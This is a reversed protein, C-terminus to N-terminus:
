EDRQKEKKDRHAGAYVLTMRAILHRTLTWHELGAREALAILEAPTYARGVSVLGDHITVRSFRMIRAFFWFGVYAFPSRVLDAVIVTGRSLDGAVRLLMVIQEPQLHHMFTPLMVLDFTGQHFPPYLADGILYEIEPYGDSLNRACAIVHQSLDLATVEIRKGCKRAEDVLHRSLDGGGCAADLVRIPDSAYDHMLPIAHALTAHAGGLLRNVVAQERVTDLTDDLSLTPDDVWEDAVVRGFCPWRIVAVKEGSMVNARKQLAGGRSSQMQSGNEYSSVQM